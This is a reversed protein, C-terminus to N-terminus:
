PSCIDGWGIFSLSLSHLAPLAMLHTIVSLPLGGAGNYMEVVQLRRVSSTITCHPSAVLECFPQCNGNHIEIDSFVHMRSTTLFSRCVLACSALTARDSHLFDQIYDTIEPPLCPQRALQDLVM